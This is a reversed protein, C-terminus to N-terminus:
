DDLGEKKNYEEVRRDWEKALAEDWGDPNITYSTFAVALKLEFDSMNKIEKLRAKGHKM